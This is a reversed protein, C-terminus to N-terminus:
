QALLPGLGARMVLRRLPGLAGLATLGFGRAADVAAFNALLSLNLAHVAATRVGIDPGRSSAYRSLAAPAGFDAGENRAAEAARLLGQVDRLGLNLGQAGIPPFAHAADGVLAVRTGTLRAVSQRIMPFIGRSGELRMPGLYGRARDEIEEAFSADGLAARRQTELESMVWVLGSRFRAAGSQPLPTLTFPGQRTHFETSFDNHPRGHALIATLANQGYRHTRLRIGAAKRTPSGRGDAGVVLKASVTRGDATTLDARWPSFDFNEIRSPVRSINPQAALSEALIDALRANEINWGFAELGIESAHFEVPRAAFLSGTDDIIRLARLPAALTEIRDWVGLDRFFDVSKGLLAVTRGQGLREIEGCSAVSFGARAFGLTAAAGALGAGVVIVDLTEAISPSVM